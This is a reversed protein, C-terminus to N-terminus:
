SLAQGTSCEEVPSLYYLQGAILDGALDFMGRRPISLIITRRNSRRVLRIHRSPAPTGDHVCRTYLTYCSQLRIVGATRAPRSRYFGSVNWVCQTYSVM